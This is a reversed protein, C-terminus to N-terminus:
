RKSMYKYHSDGFVKHALSKEHCSTCNMSGSINGLKGESGHCTTCTRVTENDHMNAMFANAFYSNLVVVTQAAMDATLRRCREKREKSDIRFGANKGWRTTSAHCLVSEAVSTPLEFDMAPKEPKFTPLPTEEYMRFLDAILANQIEKGEVLLGVLAAAGNLTGCITGYGGVGGHGYKMMQTPFSVFPEGVKEALQSIISNFVGYMCSGNPYDNYAREATEEPNLQIYKWQSEGQKFEINKPEAAPKADTKFATSLTIAGVGGAAVAGMALKIANRREM